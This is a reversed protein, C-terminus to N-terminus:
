PCSSPRHNQPTEPTLLSSTGTKMTPHPLQTITATTPRFSPVSSTSPNSRTTIPNNRSLCRFSRGDSVFAVVTFVLPALFFLFFSIPFPCSLSPTRATGRFLQRLGSRPPGGALSPHSQCTQAQGEHIIKAHDLLLPPRLPVPIPLFLLRPVPSPPCSRIHSRVQASLATLPPFSLGLCGQDCRSVTSLHVINRRWRKYERM